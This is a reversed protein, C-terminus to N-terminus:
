RVILSCIVEGSRLKNRIPQFSFGLFDFQVPYGELNRGDKKCYVIKTKEPHVKLGCNELRRKLDALTEVAKQYSSCHIILDDAYRIMIVSPHLKELWKDVCYHM